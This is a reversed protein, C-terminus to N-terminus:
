SARATAGAPAGAPSPSPGPAAPASLSRRGLTGVVPVLVALAAVGLLTAPIGAADVSAGALVSGAAGGVVFGTAVWGFGEARAGETTVTGALTFLNAMLPAVALGAVAMLAAMVPLSPALALPVLGAAFAVGFMRLRADPGRTWARAGHWVGGVMSAAAMPAILLGAAAPSGEGRAFAAMAVEVAGFVAAIVAACAVLTRLGASRIAGGARGAVVPRRVRARPVTAYALAGVVWMAGNVLVATAPGAAGAVAAALVPGGIWVLEQVVSEISYAVGLRGGGAMEPWLARVASSAPPTVAGALGAVGVVVAAPAGSTSAWVLGALALATAVALPVLVQAQGARDMLRGLPPATAGSCLALAGAAAGALWFSGSEERVLLVVALAAFGQPIRALTSAVLMWRVGPASLVARFPSLTM